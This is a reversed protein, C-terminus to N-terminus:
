AHPDDGDIWRAIRSPTNPNRRCWWAPPGLTLAVAATIWLPGSTPTFVAAIM